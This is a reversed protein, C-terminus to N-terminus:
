SETPREKDSSQEPAVSNPQLAERPRRIGITLQWGHIKVLHVAIIKGAELGHKLYDRDISLFDLFVTAGTVLFLAGIVALAFVLVHTM